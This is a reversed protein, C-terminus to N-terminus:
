DSQETTQRGRQTNHGFPALYDWLLRVHPIHSSMEVPVMKSGGLDVRVGFLPDFHPSPYNSMSNRFSPLYLVNKIQSANPLRPHARSKYLDWRELVGKVGFNPIEFSGQLNRGFPLLHLM